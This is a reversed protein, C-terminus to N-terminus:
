FRESVSTLEELTRVDLDCTIPYSNAQQYRGLAFRTQRGLIGDSKGSYYGGDKLKQQIGMIEEKSRSKRFSVLDENTIGEGVIFVPTGERIEDHAFLEKVDDNRMAICGWTWNRDVTWKRLQGHIQIEGGITKGDPVLGQSTMFEYRIRDMSNPYDIDFAHTFSSREKRYTIKYIGEPTTKFDQHLKREIPDRGLIIPYRKFSRDRDKVELIYHIKDIVIEPDVLVPLELGPLLASVINSKVTIKEGSSMEVMYYYKVDHAANTDTFGNATVDPPLTYVTVPYKIPDINDPFIARTCRFLKLDTTELDGTMEINIHIGYNEVAAADIRIDRAFIGLSFGCLILGIRFLRKIFNM